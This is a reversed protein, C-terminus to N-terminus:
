ELQSIAYWIFGFIAIAWATSGIIGLMALIRGPVGKSRDLRIYAYISWVLAFGLCAILTYFAIGLNANLFRREAWIAGIGMPGSCWGLAVAAIAM